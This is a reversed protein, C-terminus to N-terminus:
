AGATTVSLEQTPWPASFGFRVLPVDEAGRKSTGLMRLMERHGIFRTRGHLWRGNQLIYGTGKPMPLEILNRLMEERFAALEAEVRPAAMLGDERYRLFYRGKRVDVVARDTRSTGFRASRRAALSKAAEPMAELVSGGDVLIASGGESAASACIIGVLEPPRSMSSGDTHPPMAKRTFGDYGSKGAVEPRFSLRTVNDDASDRHALPRAVARFADFVHAPEQGEFLALGFRDLHDALGAPDRLERTTLWFRA